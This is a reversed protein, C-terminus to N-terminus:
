SFNATSFSDYAPDLRFFFTLQNCVTTSVEVSDFDIHFTMSVICVSPEGSCQYFSDITCLSCGDSTVSNGDDCQESPSVLGDGCIDQMCTENYWWYSNM